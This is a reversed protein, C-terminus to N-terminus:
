SRNAEFIEVKCKVTDGDYEADKFEFRFGKANLFAVPYTPADLMRIFNHLKAPSLGDPIESEQRTRCTFHEPTGYQPTPETVNFVLVSIMVVAVRMAREYIEEANGQLSLPLKFYVPGANLEDTMRFATLMTSECGRLILNQLPSGGRGYPLATMHFAICEYEDTVRKTVKWSWHLFFITPQEYTSLLRELEAPIEVFRWIGPLIAALELYAGATWPKCGAVIYVEGM